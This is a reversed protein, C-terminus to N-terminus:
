GSIKAQAQIRFYVVLAGVLISLGTFLQGGKILTVANQVEPYVTSASSLQSLDVLGLSVTGFTIGAVILAIASKITRSQWWKTQEEM